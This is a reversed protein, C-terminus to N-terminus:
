KVIKQNLILRFGDHRCLLTCIIALPAVLFQRGLSFRDKLYDKFPRIVRSGAINKLRRAPAQGGDTIRGNIVRQAIQFFGPQNVFDAKSIAGTAVVPFCIAMVM